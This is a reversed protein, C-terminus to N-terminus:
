TSDDLLKDSKGFLESLAEQGLFPNLFHQLTSVKFAELRKTIIQAFQEFEPISNPQLTDFPSRSRSVEVHREKGESKTEAPKPKSEIGFLGMAHELDKEQQEIEIRAKREAETEEPYSEIAQEKKVAVPKKIAEKPKPV